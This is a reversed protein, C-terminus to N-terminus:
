QLTAAPAGPEKPQMARMQKAMSEFGSYFDPDETRIGKLFAQVEANDYAKEIYYAYDNYLSDKDILGKEYVEDLSEFINLYAELDDDTFRGGKAKLLPKNNEIATRLGFFPPRSFREDFRLVLDMSRNSKGHELDKAQARLFYVSALLAATQLFVLIGSIHKWYDREAM